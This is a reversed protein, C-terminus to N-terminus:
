GNHPWRTDSSSLARVALVATRLLLVVTPPREVVAVARTPYVVLATRPLIAVAVAAALAELPMLVLRMMEKVAAVVVQM